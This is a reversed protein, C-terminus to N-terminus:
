SRWPRSASSPPASPTVTSAPWARGCRQSPPPPTPSWAPPGASRRSMRSRALPPWGFQPPLYDMLFGLSQHIAPAQILHYDDLVLVVEDAVEALQNVLTAAVGEVSFPQLGQLLPAVRDAIGFCATDLAAAVHRWFRAPDNDAEDLSLWAM